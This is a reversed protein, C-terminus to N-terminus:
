YPSPALMGRGRNRTCRAESCAKLTQRSFEPQIACNKSCSGSRPLACSHSRRAISNECDKGLRRYRNVMRHREVIWRKPVVVFGAIRGSHKVIEIDLHPLVKALGNAFQSGQYAGDAFLTKLFPFTGLLTAMVLTGGDPDQIDAPHVVACEIRDPHRVSPLRRQARPDIACSWYGTTWSGFWSASTRTPPLLEPTAFGNKKGAHIGLPV